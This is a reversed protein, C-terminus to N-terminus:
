KVEGPFARRAISMDPLRLGFQHHSNVRRDTTQAEPSCRDEDVESPPSRLEPSGKTFVHNAPQTRCDFVYHPSNLLRAPSNMRQAPLENEHLHRRRAPLRSYHQKWGYSRANGPSPSHRQTIQDRCYRLVAQRQFRGPLPERGNANQEADVQWPCEYVANTISAQDSDIKGNSNIANTPSSTDRCSQSQSRHVKLGIATSPTLARSTGPPGKDFGHSTTGPIAHPAQALLGADRSANKGM